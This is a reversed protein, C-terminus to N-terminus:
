IAAADAGAACRYAIALCILIVPIAAIPGFYFVLAMAALKVALLVLLFLFIM